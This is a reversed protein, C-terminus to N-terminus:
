NNLYYYLLNRNHFIELNNPCNVKYQNNLDRRGNANQYYEVTGLLDLKQIILKLDFPLAKLTTEKLETFYDEPCYQRVIYSDGGYMKFLYQEYTLKKWKALERKQKKLANREQEIQEKILEPSYSCAIELYSKLENKIKELQEIEWIPRYEEIAKRQLEQAKRQKKAEMAEAAKKYDFIM